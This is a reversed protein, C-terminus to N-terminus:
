GDDQKVGVYRSSSGKGVLRIGKADRMKNLVRKSTTTSFGCLKEVEARTIYENENLYELIMARAQIENFEKDKIYEVQDSFEEYVRHTFMYKNIKDRQLINKQILKNLVTTVAQQNIQAVESAELLTMTKNEKVYKLVCIEQVTFGGAREEEKTIFKLFDVDDLNSFLTLQIAEQYINYYPALKGLSLMDKFIIDVGQGSRQVYKLKQFVEAILKNRPTSPHSIINSNDIGKPFSGPNEIIVETPYFKIIISSANDYDRHTIANLLAEQFVNFPYDRVELKFLGIQINEIGNQNEFVQQIRDIASVLPVKLDLRKSYELEGEQYSLVLIEAQPLHKKLATETGVFLIGAVTLKLEDDVVKLLELDKLFSIDDLNYLTSDKDRSQFKRKLNEVEIFDIDEKSSDKIINASYDREFGSIRNSSYESPHYPKTNKGLRKYANGKSTSIIESSKGVIIKLIHKDEVAVVEIDTFLNPVTRDYISEIINQEDFDTCGSIAGNDEVGVLIVGGSTNAFGVAERVLIDILRKYDSSRVWAKFEVTNSEGAKIIETLLM